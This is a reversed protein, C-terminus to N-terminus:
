MVTWAVIACFLLMAGLLPRSWPGELHRKRRQRNVVRSVLSGTFLVTLSTIVSLSVTTILHQWPAGFSLIFGVIIGIAAVLTAHRPPRAKLAPPVQAVTM